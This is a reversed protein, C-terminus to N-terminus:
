GRIMTVIPLAVFPIHGVLQIWWRINITPPRHTFLPVIAVSMVIWILPGYVAAVAIVGYPAALVGRLWSSSLVLVLFVASWGFAIGFHMLVGLAATRTGGDLAAAGILVSAVGQFLRTVTSGYFFAALVSSFLGDTVGTVLGARILRSIASSEVM